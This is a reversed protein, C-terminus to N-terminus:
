LNFLNKIKSNFISTLLKGEKTKKLELYTPYEDKSLKALENLGRYEEDVINQFENTSKELDLFSIYGSTEICFECENIRTSFGKLTWVCSAVRGWHNSSRVVGNKTYWYRSSVNGTRDLSIYDPQSEPTNCKSFCGKTQLHFNTSDIM